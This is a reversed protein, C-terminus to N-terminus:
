SNGDAPSAEDSVKQVIAAGLATATTEALQIGQAKATDKVSNVAVDILEKSGHATGNAIAEQVARVAVAADQEAFHLLDKEAQSIIPDLLVMAKHYAKSFFNEVADRFDTFKSM